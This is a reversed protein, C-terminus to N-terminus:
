EKKKLNLKLFFMKLILKYSYKNIFYAYVIASIYSIFNLYPNNIYYLPIIILLVLLLSIFYKKIIIIKKITKFKM